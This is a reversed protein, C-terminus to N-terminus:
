YRTPIKQMQELTFGLLARLSLPELGETERAKDGYVGNSGYHELWRILARRLEREPSSSLLLESLKIKRDCYDYWADLDINSPPNDRDFKSM